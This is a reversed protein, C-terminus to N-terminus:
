LVFLKLLKNMKKKRRRKKKEEEEEGKEEEEEEEEDEDDNQDETADIQVGKMANKFKKLKKNSIELGGIKLTKLTKVNTLKDLVYAPTLLFCYGIDLEELCEFKKLMASFMMDTIDTYRLSLAKLKPLFRGVLKISGGLECSNLDLKELQPMSSLAVVDEDEDIVCGALRLGKITPNLDKQTAAFGEVVDIVTCDNEEFPYDSLDLYGDEKMDKLLETSNKEWWEKFETVTNDPPGLYKKKIVNLCPTNYEAVWVITPSKYFVDAIDRVAQPFASIDPLKYTIDRVVLVPKKFKLAARLEQVCWYSDLYGASLILVFLDTEQVIKELDHIKFKAESDLFPKYDDKLGEYLRGAIVQATTRKHSLFCHTKISEKNNEACEKCCHYQCLM